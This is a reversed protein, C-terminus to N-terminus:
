FFNSASILGAKIILSKPITEFAMGNIEITRCESDGCADCCRSKGVTAGIWEEIPKGQIFIINSLLPNKKFEEASLAIKEFIVEIDLPSLCQRLLSVAKEIEEETGSCRPCTKNDENVLRQWKITLKKTNNKM